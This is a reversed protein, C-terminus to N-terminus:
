QGFGVLWVVLAVTLGVATCVFLQYPLDQSLGSAVLAARAMGAGVIGLVGCLLWAPFYAGFLAFSPAGASCGGLTVVAIGLVVQAAYKLSPRTMASSLSMHSKAGASKRKILAKIPQKSSFDDVNDGEL